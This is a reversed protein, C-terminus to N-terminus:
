PSPRARSSGPAPASSLRARRLASDLVSLLESMDVPKTVCYPIGAGAAVRGVDANGSLLVIPIAELGAGGKSLEAAIAPGTMGPMSADLVAVDPRWERITRLAELGDVATRVEHGEDRVIEALTDVLDVEDDAFVIRAM